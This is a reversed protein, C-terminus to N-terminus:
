HHNYGEQNLREKGLLVISLTPFAGPNIPSVYRYMQDVSLRNM